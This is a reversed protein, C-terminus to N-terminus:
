FKNKFGLEMKLEEVVNFIIPCTQYNMLIGFLRSTFNPQHLHPFDRCGTFRNEYITCKKEHLFSCPITKIIMAGSMSEELYKDKTAAVSLQLHAALEEAENNSVNIMLSKCCNGCQTCDIQSSIEDNLQHVLEDVKKSSSNKLFLRFSDNEEENEAAKAAIFNLDTVPNM